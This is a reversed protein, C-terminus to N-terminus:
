KLGEMELLRKKRAPDWRYGGTGGGKPVIRHCPIALAVPNRACASAAARTANPDGIAEALAAYTLTSGHPIARLAQWVRAQFATAQVDIPFDPLRSHGELYAAFAELWPALTHPDYLLGAQTFDAQLHAKLPELADGLQVSCLGLDTKAVLIWGLATQRAAYRITLGRGGDRFRGPTMGIYTAAHEYLRSSSGFGAEFTARTVSDGARTQSRFRAVRLAAGYQQPTVGLAAKFRRQIQQAGLGIHRALEDLSPGCTEHFAIFQVARLIPAVEDTLPGEHMPHCRLCPRYGATEAEAASAFILTNRRAPRRSPCSPRCFVRTSRVGYYVLGDFRADRQVIADWLLDDPEPEPTYM